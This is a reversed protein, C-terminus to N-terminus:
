YNWVLLEKQRRDNPGLSSTIATLREHFGRWLLKMRATGGASLLFKGKIMELRGRLERWDSEGFPNQYGQTGLYPPDVYFLAQASDHKDIVEQWPSCELYARALRLAWRYFRKKLNHIHPPKGHRGEPAWHERLGGFSIHSLYVFRGARLISSEFPNVRGSSQCNSCDLAQAFLARSNPLLRLARALERSHLKVTMLFNVLEENLDNLVEVKSPRKAWFVAASGCFPEVYVMKEYGAPFLKVITPALLRKSGHWRLLSENRENGPERLHGIRGAM